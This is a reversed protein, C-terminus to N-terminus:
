KENKCLIKKLKEKRLNVEGEYSWFNYKAYEEDELWGFGCDGKTIHIFKSIKLHNMFDSDEELLIDIYSNPVNISELNLKIDADNRIKWYKKM